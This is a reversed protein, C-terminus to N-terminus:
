YRFTRNNAYTGVLHVDVIGLEDILEVGAARTLAIFVFICRLPGTHIAGNKRRDTSERRGEFYSVLHKRVAETATGPM